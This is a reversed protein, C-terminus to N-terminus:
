KSEKKVHGVQEWGQKCLQQGVADDVEVTEGRQVPESVGEVTVEALGESYKVKM